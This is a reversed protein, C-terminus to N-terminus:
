PLTNVKPSLMRIRGWFSVWGGLLLGREPEAAAGIKRHHWLFIMKQPLEAQPRSSVTM